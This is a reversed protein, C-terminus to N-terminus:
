SGAGNAGGRNGKQIKAIDTDGAALSEIRRHAVGVDGSLADVRSQLGDVRDSKAQANQVQVNLVAIATKLEGIAATTATKFDAIATTLEKTAVAQKTIAEDYQAIMRRFFFRAAWAVGLGAGGAGLVSPTAQAIQDITDSM